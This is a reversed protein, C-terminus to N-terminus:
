RTISLSENEGSEAIEDVMRKVVGDVLDFQVGGHEVVPRLGEVFEEYGYSPHFQVLEHALSRDDTLYRALCLAVFTERDGPAVLIIQPSADQVSRIIEELRDQSWGTLNCLWDITLSPPEPTLEGEPLGSDPDSTHVPDARSSAPEAPDFREYVFM